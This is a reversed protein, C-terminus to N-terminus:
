TITLSRCLAALRVPGVPHAGACMQTTYATGVKTKDFGIDLVQSFVM